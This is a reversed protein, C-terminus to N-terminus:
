KGKGWMDRKRVSRVGTDYGWRFAAICAIILILGDMWNLDSM